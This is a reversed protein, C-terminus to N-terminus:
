VEIEFEKVSKKEIDEFPTKRRFIVFYSAENKGVPLCAGHWVTQNIIIAEGINVQFAEAKTEDEGDILVPLVFSADIPILFEPTLMHREMCTIINKPQKYVTCIGAETEGNIKYHAIDSWFKYDAAQSTPSGIPSAVVSGFGLFNETTIKKAKIKM